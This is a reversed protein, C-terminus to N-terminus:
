IIFFNYNQFNGYYQQQLALRFCSIMPYLPRDARRIKQRRYAQCRWRGMERIEVKCFVLSLQQACVVPVAKYLVIDPRARLALAGFRSTGRERQARGCRNSPFTRFSSISSPANFHTFVVRVSPARRADASCTGRDAIASFFDKADTSVLTLSSWIWSRAFSPRCCKQTNSVFGTHM